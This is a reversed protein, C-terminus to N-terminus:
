VISLDTAIIYYDNDEGRLIYPDRVGNENSVTNTLFPSGNNLTSWNLGDTSTSFYIQEDTAQKESGVFHVFLYASTDVEDKVQVKREVTKKVTEGSLISFTVTYVGNQVNSFEGNDTISTQENGESDKLVTKVTYKSTDISYDTTYKINKTNNDNYAYAAFSDAVELNGIVTVEFNRKFEVGDKAMKATLTATKTDDSRTVKGEKTVVTDDSTSWTVGEQSPLTIDATVATLDGLDLSNLPNEYAYNYIVFDDIYGTAYEGSGWNAKGIYAVSNKGLMDSINVTSNVSNTRTGNVYVDTVGDAISIIVDNWENTNYAGKAAESRTGSNNYREFTLTGNNTMAGLYQEKQYTQASSNPSAFFWWSTTTTTPKVKFSITINKQGTLLSNGNADTLTVVTGSTGDFQICKKNDVTVFKPTGTAKGYSSTSTLDGNDFNMNILEGSEPVTPAATPEPTPTPAALESSYSIVDADFNDYSVVRGRAGNYSGTLELSKVSIPTSITGTYSVDTEGGTFSVSASGTGDIIIEVKKNLGMNNAYKQSSTQWGNAGRLKGNKVDTSTCQIVPKESNALVDTGGIRMQNLNYGGGTITFGVVENGDADKVSFTNEKGNQEWGSFMDFTLRFKDKSTLSKAESLEAKATAKVPVFVNGFRELGTAYVQNGDASLDGASANFINTSDEFDDSMEDIDTVSPAGVATEESPTADVLFEAINTMNTDNTYRFYRYANQDALDTSSITTYQGSPIATSITYM